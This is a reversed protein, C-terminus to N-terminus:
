EAVLVALRRRVSVKFHVKEREADLLTELSPVVDLVKEKDLVGDTDDVPM